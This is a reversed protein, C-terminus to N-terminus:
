VGKPPEYKNILDRILNVYDNPEFRKEDFDIDQLVSDIFENSRGDKIMSVIEKRIAEREEANFKETAM